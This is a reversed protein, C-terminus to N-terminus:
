PQIFTVMDAMAIRNATGLFDVCTYRLRAPWVYISTVCPSKLWTDTHYLFKLKQESTM